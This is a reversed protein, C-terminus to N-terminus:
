GNRSSNFISYSSPDETRTGVFMRSRSSLLAEGGREVGITDWTEDSRATTVRFNRGVWWVRPLHLIVTDVPGLNSGTSAVSPTYM